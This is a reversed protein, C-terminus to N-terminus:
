VKGCCKKYKRGSGCPCKDNRGVKSESKVPELKWERDFMLVGNLHDIEHQVAVCELLDKDDEMEVKGYSSSFYVTVDKEWRQIIVNGSGVYDCKVVLETHRKTRVSKGPFSVCGEQYWTEGESEIVKPNVLVIVEKARVVCIQKHIGIQPAALGVDNDNREMLTVLLQEAIEQAEDLSSVLDNPKRLEKEDSVIKM